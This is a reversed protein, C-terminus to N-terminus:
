AVPGCEIVTYGCRQLFGTLKSLHHILQAAEFNSFAIHLRIVKDIIILLHGGSGVRLLVILCATGGDFGSLGVQFSIVLKDATFRFRCEVSQHEHKLCRLANGEAATLFEVFEEVLQETVDGSSAVLRNDLHLFVYVANHCLECLKM